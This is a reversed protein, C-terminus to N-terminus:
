GEYVQERFVYRAEDGVWQWKAVVIPEVVDRVKKGPEIEKTMGGSKALRVILLDLDILDISEIFRGFESCIKM